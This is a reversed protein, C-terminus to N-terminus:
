AASITPRLPARECTTPRASSASAEQSGTWAHPGLQGFHPLQKRNALRLRLALSHLQLQLCERPTHAREVNAPSVRAGVCIGFACYCVRAVCVFLGLRKGKRRKMERRKEEGEGVRLHDGGVPRRHLLVLRFSNSASCGCASMCLRPRALKAFLRELSGSKDQGSKWSM